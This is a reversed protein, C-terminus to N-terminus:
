KNNITDPKTDDAARPTNEPQEPSSKADNKAPPKVGTVEFASEVVKKNRFRRVLYVILIVGVLIGIIWREIHAVHGAYKDFLHGFYYGGFSFTLAWVAAGILNLSFFKKHKVGSVGLMIPTINRVGYVFRFGLILATEYKVMLRRVKETKQEMKPSKKLMAQGKYKGLSFMLQDSCFSGAFAALAILWPNFLGKSAAVFGAVIVVTEGELFTWGLIILYGWERLLQEVYAWDM